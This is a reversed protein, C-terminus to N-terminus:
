PRYEAAVQLLSDAGPLRILETKSDFDQWPKGNVTVRQIVKAQPHRLRLLATKPRTRHPLEVSAIIKGLETDSVIEYSVTGFHTPVKKVSIKRTRAVSAPHGAGALPIRRGGHGAHVPVAGSLLVGRLIKDPPGGTTHERFTSEGPMIDVAYQNLMSRIFNPADDEALASRLKRDRPPASSSVM